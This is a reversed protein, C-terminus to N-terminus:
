GDQRELGLLLLLAQFYQWLDDPRHIFLGTDFLQIMASM